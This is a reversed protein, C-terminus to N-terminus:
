NVSKVFDEPEIKIHLIDQLVEMQYLVVDRRYCEHSQLMYM